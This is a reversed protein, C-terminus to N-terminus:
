ADGAPNKFWPSVMKLQGNGNPDPVSFIKVDIGYIAKLADETIVEDAKGIAVFKGNNMMAVTNPYMLVQNPNHTTMIMSIGQEALKNIINLCLAQNKFDLHSTPEDFMIVQPEQALTRAILILQIEGGSIETYPKDKIHLMGVKSLSSEAFAIDKASPAAFRSLYPARGMSVVELVSYPFSATHDQFVFGINKALEITDFTRIDKENLLITGVNLKLAGALCRLLTTKGCGNPGLICLVEGAAIDLNLGSFIEHDGYSFAGDRLKIRPTV